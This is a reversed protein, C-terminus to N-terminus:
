GHAPPIVLVPMSAHNVVKEAVSGLFAHALGRRCHSAMVITDAGHDKAAAIISEAVSGDREEFASTVTVGELNAAKCQRVLADLTERDSARSQADMAQFAVYSATQLNPAIPATPPTSVYCLTFSAGLRAALSLARYTLAERLEADARVDVAVLLHQAWPGLQAPSPAVVAPIPDKM